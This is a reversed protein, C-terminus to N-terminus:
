KTKIPHEKSWKGVIEVAEEPHAFCYKICTGGNEFVLGRLRCDETCASYSSCMRKLEKMFKVADMRYRKNM